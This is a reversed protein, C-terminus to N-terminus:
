APALIRCVLDAIEALRRGIDADLPRGAEAYFWAAQLLDGYVDLQLQGAAANGVRVPSSGGYGALGLTREKTDARGNLRYLVSLRPHTLQSAQMLWWFFADAEDVCGLRLLASIIFASDRVWCFRYDWNREGGAM